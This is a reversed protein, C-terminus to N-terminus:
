IEWLNVVELALDKPSHATTDLTLDAIAGLSRSSVENPHLVAQTYHEPTDKHRSRLVGEPATLHVHRVCQFQSRFHTVQRPKRVADILWSGTEPSADIRRSAVEDVLWRFDTQRDLRDGIEQMLKRSRENDNAVDAPLLTALYRSSSIKEFGFSDQLEKALTTKGVHIPGSILLLREPNM